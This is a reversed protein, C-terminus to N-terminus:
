WLKVGAAALRRIEEQFEPPGYGIAQQEVAYGEPTLVQETYILPRAQETAYRKLWDLARGPIRRGVPVALDVPRGHWERVGPIILVKARDPRMWEPYPSGAMRWGCIFNKCPDEPRDEYIACGAGTSFRCPKGPAVEHGYVEMRVWGDCCGTCPQCERESPPVPM